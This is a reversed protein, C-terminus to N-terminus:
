NISLRYALSKRTVAPLWHEGGLKYWLQPPLYHLTLERIRLTDQVGIVIMPYKQGGVKATKLGYTSQLWFSIISNEDYSFQKTAINLGCTRRGGTNAASGDDGILIALAIPHNIRNLFAATITKRKGDYLAKRLETFYPHTISHFRAGARAKGDRKDTYTCVQIPRAYPLLLKHKWQLYIDQKAAHYLSFHYNIGNTPKSLSGDGLLSGM